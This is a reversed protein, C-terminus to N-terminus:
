PHPTPTPTVTPTVTPTILSDQREIRPNVWVAQDNKFLGNTLANLTFKVSNGALSSLDTDVLTSHGDYLENTQWLTTINGDGIQYNLQFIVNCGTSQYACNITARFRDGNIIAFAPYIGKIYGNKTNEPVTLLGLGDFFQGNEM